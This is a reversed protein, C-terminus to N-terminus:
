QERCLYGYHPTRRGVLYSIRYINECGALDPAASAIEPRASRDNQEKTSRSSSDSYDLDRSSYPKAANIEYLEAGEAAAIREAIGKTTGTASFYVVLVKAAGSDKAAPQASTKATTGGNESAKSCAALVFVAAIVLLAAIMTQMTKM